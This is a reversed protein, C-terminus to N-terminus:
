ALQVIHVCVCVCVVDNGGKHCVTVSVQVDLSTNPNQSPAAYLVINLSVNM